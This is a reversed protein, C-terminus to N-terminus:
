SVKTDMNVQYYYQLTQPPAMYRLINTAIRRSERDRPNVMMLRALIMLARTIINYVVYLHMLGFGEGYITSIHSMYDAANDFITDMYSAGFFSMHEGIVAVQFKEM